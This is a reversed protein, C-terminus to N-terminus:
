AAALLESMAHRLLRSIHMQSYELRAGIEAQTLEDLHYLRMILQERDDLTEILADLTMRDIARLIEADESALGDILTVVGDDEGSFRPQDLSDARLARYAERAEVVDEVDAGVHEALQAPTPSTGSGSMLEQNAREVRLALEQLDRPVRVAWGSDRSYRKIAGSISPVAFSSFAIGRLPDFMDVAKILAVYAVQELDELPEWGRRHRRALNRALPVFREILADRTRADRARHYARFLRQEEYHRQRM